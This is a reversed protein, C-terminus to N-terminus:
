GLLVRMRYDLALAWAVNVLEQPRFDLAHQSALAELAAWWRKSRAPDLFPSSSLPSGNDDDENGEDEDEDSLGLRSARREDAAAAMQLRSLGWAANAVDLANGARALPGSGAQEETTTSLLADALVLASDCPPPQQADQEGGASGPPPWVARAAAAAVARELAEAHDREDAEALAAAATASQGSGGGAVVVAALKGLAWLAGSAQRAVRKDDAGTADQPRSKSRRGTPEAAVRAALAALLAGTAPRVSSPRRSAVGGGEQVHALRNLAAAAHLSDIRCGADSASALVTSLDRADRATALAKTVEHPQPTPLLLPPIITTPPPPTTTAEAASAAFRSPLAAAV